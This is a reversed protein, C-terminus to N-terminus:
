GLKANLERLLSIQDPRIWREAEHIEFWGARDVEPFSQTHGSKPPWEIEFTNSLIRTDLDAEVAFAFVRKRNVQVIPSLHIFEGALAHGTEEEFERRAAVLAEENQEFEGKVISWAGQDRKRWYPGGPHALFVHIDKGVKKFPLIGASQKM